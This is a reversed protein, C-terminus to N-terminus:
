RRSGSARFRERASETTVIDVEGVDCPSCLGGVTNVGTEMAALFAAVNANVQDIDDSGSAVVLEDLGPINVHVPQNESTRFVFAGIEEVDSTSLAVNSTLTTLDVGFCIEASEVKGGLIADLLTAFSAAFQQFGALTFGTPMNISTTGREGSDDIVTYIIQPAIAM